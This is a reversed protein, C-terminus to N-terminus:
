ANFEEQSPRPHSSIIGHAPTEPSSVATGPLKTLVVGIIQKFLIPGWLRSDLSQPRNDGCVFVHGAPVHWSWRGAEDVHATTRIHMNVEMAPYPATEQTFTDGGLAVIRKVFWLSRGADSTAHNRSTTLVVIHGRRLRRIPYRRLVLVRDGHALLPRMSTGIVTVLCLSKRLLVIAGGLVLCCTGVILLFLPM